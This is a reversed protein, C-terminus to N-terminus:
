KTDVVFDMLNTINKKFRSFNLVVMSDDETIAKTVANMFDIWENIAKRKPSM